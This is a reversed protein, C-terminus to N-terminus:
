RRVRITRLAQDTRWQIVAKLEDNWGALSTPWRRAPPVYAAKRYGLGALAARNRDIEVLEDLFRGKNADANYASMASAARVGLTERFTADDVLRRMLAAAEAVDPEAWRAQQRVSADLYAQASGEVRVLKYGVLCATTHDMFSMNGSWGTAVVALGLAMAEAMGLGLGESRHLSVYVDSARYLGIIEPYTMPETVLRIRPHARCREALRVAVESPQGDPRHANNLKVILWASPRDGVGAVFADIAAFPNKRAPDSAPEFAMVFLVADAPVGFRAREAASVAPPSVPLRASVTTADLLALRFAATMFDSAGVVVDMRDLQDIWRQPLVPLEWFCLAVNLTGGGFFSPPCTALFRQFTALAVVCVNISFPLEDLSAVCLRRYRDEKGSRGWGADVDYAAVPLGRAELLEIVQRAVVGLGLNASVHGVVNFGPQM